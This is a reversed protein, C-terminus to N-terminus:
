DKTGKFQLHSFMIESMYPSYVMAGTFAPVVSLVQKLDNIQSQLQGVRAILSGERGYKWKDKEDM